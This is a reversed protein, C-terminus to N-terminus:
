YWEFSLRQQFNLRYVVSLFLESCLQTDKQPVNREACRKCAVFLKQLGLIQDLRDNVVIFKNLNRFRFRLIEILYNNYLRFLLKLRIPVNFWLWNKKMNIITILSNMELARSELSERFIKRYRNIKILIEYSIIEATILERLEIYEFFTNVSLKEAFNRCINLDIKSFSLFLYLFM